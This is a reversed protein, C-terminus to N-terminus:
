GPSASAVEDKPKLVEERIAITPPPAPTTGGAQASATEKKPPKMKAPAPRDLPFEARFDTLWPPTDAAIRQAAVRATFGRLSEALTELEDATGRAAEAREMAWDVQFESFEREMAAILQTYRSWAASFGGFRDVATATGGTVILLLGLGGFDFPSHLRPFAAGVFPAFLGAAIFTLTWARLVRAMFAFSRKRATLDHIAVRANEDAESRLWDLQEILSLESLAM